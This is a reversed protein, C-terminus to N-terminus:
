YITTGYTDTTIVKSEENMQAENVEWECTTLWKWMTKMYGLKGQMVKTDVEYKLCNMIHEHMALSKGTIRCYQQRCKNVNTRLFGKTGDPRVVYIPYANYFEDFWNKTPTIINKLKETIRYTTHNDTIEVSILDKNVLDQIETEEVRSLLTSVNQNIKQNENTVLNLLVLQNISLNEIKDLLSTDLELIM